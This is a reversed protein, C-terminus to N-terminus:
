NVMEVNDYKRTTTISAHGLEDKVTILDEGNDLQATAFTRRQNHLACKEIGAQQQRVLLIQYVAQDTLQSETVM